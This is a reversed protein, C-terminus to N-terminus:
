GASSVDEKRVATWELTAFSGCSGCLESWASQRYGCNSCQWAPGRPASAAKGAAFRAATDNGLKQELAELALYVRRQPGLELAANLHSRAPGPLDAATAHRGLALHGDISTRDGILAELQQYRRTPSTDDALDLWAATLDPHPMHRWGERVMARARRVAGKKRYQAAAMLRAPVLAPELKIAERALKLVDDGRGETEAKRAEALRITARRHRFEQETVRSSRYAALLAKDAAAWDALAVANEFLGTQAWDARPLQEIARRATALMAPQDGQAADVAFLGHLALAKTRRDGELARFRKRATAMDGEALAAQGALVDSLATQGVLDEFKRAHRAARKGDGEMLSSLGWALENYGRRHRALKQREWLGTTIWRWLLMLLASLVMLVATAIALMAVSTDLRHNEFDIVVRGPHDMVWAGAAALAAAVALAFLLRIM